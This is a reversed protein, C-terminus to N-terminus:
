ESSISLLYCRISEKLGELDKYTALSEEEKVFVPRSEYIKRIAAQVSEPMRGLCKLANEASNQDGKKLM